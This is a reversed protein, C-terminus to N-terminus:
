TLEARSSDQEGATHWTKVYLKIKGDDADSPRGRHNLFSFAQHFLFSDTWIPRTKNHSKAIRITHIRRLEIM